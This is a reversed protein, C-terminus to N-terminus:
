SLFDQKEVAGGDERNIAEAQDNLRSLFEIFMLIEGHSFCETVDKSFQVQEAVLERALEKGKPTLSVYTLRRDSPDGRRDIWGSEQMQDVLRTVNSLTVRMDNALESHTLEDYFLLTKLVTYQGAAKSLGLGTWRHVMAAKRASEAFALLLNLELADLDAEAHFERYPRVQQRTWREPTM